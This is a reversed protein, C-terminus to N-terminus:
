LEAATLRGRAAWLWGYMLAFGLRQWLGHWRAMQDGLLFLVAMVVAALVTFWAFGRWGPRSMRGLALLTIGALGNVLALRVAHYHVDSYAEAMGREEATQATKSTFWWRPTWWAPGAVQPQEVRRMPAYSVFFMAMAAAGIMVCGLVALASRDEGLLFGFALLMLIVAFLFSAVVIWPWHPASNQYETIYSHLLSLEQAGSGSHGRVLAFLLVVLLASLAWGILRLLAPSRGMAVVKATDPLWKLGPVRVKPRARRGGGGTIGRGHGVPEGGQGRAEGCGQEVFQAATSGPVEM